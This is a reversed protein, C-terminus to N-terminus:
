SLWGAGEEGEGRVGDGEINLPPLWFRDEAHDEESHGASSPARQLDAGLMGLHGRTFDFPPPAREAQTEEAPRHQQQLEERQLRSSLPPEGQTRAGPRSARLVEFGGSGSPPMAAADEEQQVSEEYGRGGMITRKIESFAAGMKAVGSWAGKERAAANSDWTTGEDSWEDEEEDVEEQRKQATKAKGWGFTSKSPHQQRQKKKEDNRQEARMSKHAALAAVQTSSLEHSPTKVLAQYSDNRHTQKTALMEVPTWTEILGNQSQQRTHNQNSHNVQGPLPFFPNVDIARGGGTRVFTSSQDAYLNSAPSIPPLAAMIHEGNEEETGYVTMPISTPRVGSGGRYEGCQQAARVDRMPVAQSNALMASMTNISSTNSVRHDLKNRQLPAVSVNDRMVSRQNKVKRRKIKRIAGGLGATRASMREDFSVKWALRVVAEACKVLIVLIAGSLYIAQTLLVVYSVWVRASQSFGVLTTLLLVMIATIIRLVNTMFTLPGMMAGKGWPLWLSSALAALIEVTLLIIAQAAGSRQGAGVVIGLVLSHAFSIAYFLQSGPSYHHYVCGLSLLTGVDDEFLTRLPKRAIRAIVYLPLIVSFIAFSLAALIVSVTSHQTPLSLQYTSMITIPLHFLVLARLLNGHLAKGHLGVKHGWWWARKPPDFQLASFNSSASKVRSSRKKSGTGVGEDVEVLKLGPSHPLRVTGEERQRKSSDLAHVISAFIWIVFSVAVIGGVIILWIGLCTGFLNESQMGIMSAYAKIGDHTDGLNLLSNAQGANMYVPSTVDSMATGLDGSPLTANTSLPSFRADTTQTLTVNGLLTSWAAQRFFPYIFDPWQVHCMAVAVIFQLHFIIDWFGPTVFRLLAPSMILGRGSSASIVMPTLKDNLFKPAGGERARNKFARRNMTEATIFKACLALVFSAIALGIPLWLIFDWYWRHPSYPTAFIEICGITLAPSSSDTLRVETLLVGAEYTSNLPIDVGFSVTGPGYQCSSPNVDPHQSDNQTPYLQNCLYTYNSFVQFTSFRTSVQIASLLGRTLGTSDTYSNFAYSENGITGIGVIRLTGVTYPVGAGLSLDSEKRDLQTYVSSVNIRNQAAVYGVSASDSCGTFYPGRQVNTDDSSRPVSLLYPVQQASLPIAVVSTTSPTSTTSNTTSSNSGTTPTGTASSPDNLSASTATAQASVSSSSGVVLLLLLLPLLLFSVNLGASTARERSQREKLKIM